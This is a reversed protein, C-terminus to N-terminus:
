CISLDPMPSVDLETTSEEWIVLSAKKVRQSVGDGMFIGGMSRLAPKEEQAFREM